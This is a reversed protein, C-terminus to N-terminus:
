SDVKVYRKLEKLVGTVIVTALVFTLMDAVPQAIQLGLVGLSQPLILLSPILFLGQRGMAVLSARFGYGISQTLMNVMIVWAQFPMTLLQLRLALTGIEIVQADERRFATVIPKSFVFAIVGFCSLMIVAVKVCFWYAKLVRDYRKAGFNFWCVPQFGQGFGILSSNVFMMFRSVISMAAIAADGYPGAAYNLVVM